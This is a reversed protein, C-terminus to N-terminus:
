DREPEKSSTISSVEDAAPELSSSLYRPAGSFSRCSIKRLCVHTDSNIARADSTVFIDSIRFDPLSISLIRPLNRLLIALGRSTPPSLDMSRPRGAILSAKTLAPSSALAIESRASPTILKSENRSSRSFAKSSSSGASIFTSTLPCPPATIRLPYSLSNSRKRSIAVPPFRQIVSSSILSRSLM